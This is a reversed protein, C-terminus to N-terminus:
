CYFHIVIADPGVADNVEKCAMHILTGFHRGRLKTNTVKAILPPSVHSINDYAIRLSAHQQELTIM